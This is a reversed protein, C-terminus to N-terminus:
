RNGAHGDFQLDIGFTDRFGAQGPRTLRLARTGGPRELWGRELLATALAAALAGALHPRRETWDLCPRAYHRRQRAADEVDVGLRQLARAGTPSLTYDGAGPALWGRALLVDFLRVAVNGALHDYCTRVLSLARAQNSQRLSRVPTAPCIHSLAELAAAVEAGALTYYHHRGQIACRILGGRTLDALHGSATSPSIGAARALERGTVARGDLLLDVMAARAPNALLRGVGSFDTVM